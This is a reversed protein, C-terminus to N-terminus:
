IKSYKPISVRGINPFVWIVIVWFKWPTRLLGSTSSKRCATLTTISGGGM